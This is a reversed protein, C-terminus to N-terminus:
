PVAFRMVSGDRRGVALESGQNNIAISTIGDNADVQHLTQGDTDIFSVVGNLDATVL